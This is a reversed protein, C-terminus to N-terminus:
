DIKIKSFCEYMGGFTKRPIYKYEKNKQKLEVEKKSIKIGEGEIIEVIEWTYPINNLRQKLSNFTKGIKYFIEEESYCKIIYVKFSDFKNSKFAANVWNTTRWGLLENNQQYEALAKYGCKPCGAGSIHGSMSQRFEGHTPCIIIIEKTNKIYKFNVYNYKFRHKENVKNLFYKTPNQATMITPKNGLLLNYPKVECKGYRTEVIIKNKNTIYEGIIKFSKNYHKNNERLKNKFFSTKNIASQITPIEGMLLKDPIVKCYGFEMKILIKIKARKYKGIVKYHKDYNPVQEKLKNIFYSQKDIATRITPKNNTFLKSKLLSCIGYSDEVIVKFIQGEKICVEKVIFKDNRYYENKDKLKKIFQETLKKELM